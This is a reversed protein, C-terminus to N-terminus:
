QNEPTNKLKKLKEALGFRNKKPASKPAIPVNLKLEYCIKQAEAILFDDPLESYADHLEGKSHGVFEDRAKDNVNSTECRSYFTRRLDKLTHEKNPFIKNFMERMSQVGYMDLETIGELFPKLMPCIPIRKWEIIGRVANKRKSNKAFIIEGEIRATQYENPRMGTYLAVAFMTQFETGYTYEFLKKEEELTLAKGHKREHPINVVPKMPNRNLVGRDVAYNFIGNLTSICEDKTKGKGTASMQDVFNQCFDTSIARLNLTEFVPKIHNKYRNLDNYYTSAIVKRKKVNEFYYMAFEHFNSPLKKIVHRPTATSITPLIIKQTLDDLFLTMCENENTACAYIEIGNILARKEFIRNHFRPPKQIAKVIKNQTQQEM